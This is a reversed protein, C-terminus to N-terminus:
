KKEKSFIYISNFDDSRTENKIFKDEAILTLKNFLKLIKDRSMYQKHTDSKFAYIENGPVSILIKGGWKTSNIISQVVKTNDEEDLHELTESCFYYDASPNIRSKIDKVFFKCIKNDIYEKSLREIIDTNIDIGIYTSPSCEDLSRFLV